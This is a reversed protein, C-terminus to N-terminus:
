ICTFKEHRLGLGPRHGAACLVRGGFLPRCVLWPDKCFVLLTFGVAAQVQTEAQTAPQGGAFTIDSVLECNM